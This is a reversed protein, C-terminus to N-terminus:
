PKRCLNVRENRDLGMREVQDDPLEEAYRVLEVDFGADRLRAEFDRGYIRVHDYQGFLRMRERPDTITPDEFTDRSLDLPVQLMAWGGPKLVRHLERLATRDDDVHELVHNCVIADFSADPHQIDRVDMREMALTSDYDASLYDVNDLARFRRALSEEPAVHLLRVPERAVNTRDRLFLWDVRHRGLAGCWPCMTHKHGSAESTYIRWRGFTRDCCPCMFRRGAFLPATATNYLTRLRPRWAHPVITRGIRKATAAVGAM